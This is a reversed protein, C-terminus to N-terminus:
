RRVDVTAGIRFLTVDVPVSYLQATASWSGTLRYAAGAFVATRRLNVEIRTNDVLGRSDTFGVEFRPALWTIGGGAYLGLRGARM